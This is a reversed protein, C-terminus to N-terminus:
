PYAVDHINSLECIGTGGITMIGVNAQLGGYMCHFGFGCCIHDGNPPILCIVLSCSLKRYMDNTLYKFEKM